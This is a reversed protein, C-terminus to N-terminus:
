LSLDVKAQDAKESSDQQEEKKKLVEYKNLADIMKQAIANQDPTKGAAPPTAQAQGAAPATTPNAAAAPSTSTAGQGAEAAVGAGLTLRGGAPMVPLLNSTLQLPVPRNNLVAGNTGRGQSIQRQFSATQNAFSQEPTMAPAPASRFLQNMPVAQGDAAMVPVGQQAPSQQAPSQQAALAAAPMSQQAMAASTPASAAAINRGASPVYGMPRTSPTAAAVRTAVGRQGAPVPTRPQGDPTGAALMWEPMPAEPAQQGKATAVQPTGVIADSDHDRSGFVDALMREGLDKGDSNTLLANSAVSVGFGIPGGYLADGIIRTGVAPEDGTLYRYISGVVPLHQLPNVIDLLDKFSFGGKSWM